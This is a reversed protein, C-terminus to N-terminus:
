RTSGSLDFDRISSLLRSFVTGSSLIANRSCVTAILSQKRSFSLSVKHPFLFIKMSDRLRRALM